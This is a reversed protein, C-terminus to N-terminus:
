ECSLHLFPKDPTEITMHNLIGDWGQLALVVNAKSKEWQGQCTIQQIQDVIGGLSQLQIKCQTLKFLDNPTGGEVSFTGMKSLSVIAKSTSGQCQKFIISEAFAFSSSSFLLVLVTIISNTKM